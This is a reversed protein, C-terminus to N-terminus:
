GLPLDMGAVEATQVNEIEKMKSAIGDFDKGEEVHYMAKLIVAKLGFAIPQEDVLMKGMSGNEKAIEQAKTKIAELDVEPSEPMIKLTVIVQAMKWRTQGQLDANLANTNQQLGKQM